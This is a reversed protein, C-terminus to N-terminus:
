TVTRILRILGPGPAAPRKSMPVVPRYHEVPALPAVLCAPVALSDLVHQGKMYRTLEIGIRGDPSESGSAGASVSRQVNM